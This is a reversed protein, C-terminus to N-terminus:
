PRTEELWDVLQQTMRALIKGADARFREQLHEDLCWWLPAYDPKFMDWTLAIACERKDWSAEIRARKAAVEARFADHGNM